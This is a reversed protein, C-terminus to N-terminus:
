TNTKQVCHGHMYVPTYLISFMGANGNEGKDGKRGSNGLMIGVTDDLTVYVYFFICVLMGKIM